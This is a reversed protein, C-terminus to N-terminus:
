PTVPGEAVEIPNELEQRQARLEDRKVVLTGAVMDHLGRKRKTFAVMVYGICLTLYSLYKAFHRGTARGFTLRRKRDDLVVLGLAMKGLTARHRSSTMLAEYPWWILALTLIGATTLMFSFEFEQDTTLETYEFFPDDAGLIIRSVILPSMVIVLDLLFAGVRVWFGGQLAQERAREVRLREADQDLIGDCHPCRAIGQYTDEDCHPCPAIRPFSTGSGGM